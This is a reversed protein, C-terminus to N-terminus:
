ISQWISYSLNERKQEKVLHFGGTELIAETDDQMTDVVDLYVGFREDLRISDPLFAPLHIRANSM